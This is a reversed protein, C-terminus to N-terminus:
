VICPRTKLLHEIATALNLLRPRLITEVAVVAEQLSKESGEQLRSPGQAVIWVAKRQGRTEFQSETIDVRFPGIVAVYHAVGDDFVELPVNFVTPKKTAPRIIQPRNM